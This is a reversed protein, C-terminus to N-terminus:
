AAALAVDSVPRYGAIEAAVAEPSDPRLHAMAIVRFVVARALLQPGAARAAAFREALDVPAAEWAVADAVLIADAFPAPAFHPSMDIVAPPLDDAYLINGLDGHIIQPPPGTWPQTWLPALDDLLVTVTPPLHAAPALDGWAVRCGISWPGDSRLPEAGVGALAAHFAASVSLGEEWRGSRHEGSLWGTAAWGDVIWRDDASAVPRAVRYANCDPVQALVGALWDIRDAPATPKLVVGGARWSTGQGGPLWTLQSTDGGFATVVHAPPQGDAPAGQDTVGADEGVLARDKV